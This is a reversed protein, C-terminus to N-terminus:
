AGLRARYGMRYWGWALLAFFVTFIAGAWWETVNELADRAAPWGLQVFVHVLGLLPLAACPALLARAVRHPLRGARAARQTEQAVILMGICSLGFYLATGYRRMFRYGEGETGLFSGYLVLCAGATLGLAPLLRPLRGPPAQLMQLWGPCLCWCLAQLVAAPLLLARFLINPLGHRGTRSISVCGDLFPNCDPILGLRLSLAYAIATAALPLAGALAALPWLAPDRNM